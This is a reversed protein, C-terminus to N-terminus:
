FCTSDKYFFIIVKATRKFQLSIESETQKEKKLLKSYARVEKCPKLCSETSPMANYVQDELMRHITEYHQKYVDATVPIRGNCINPHDPGALWPVMCGLLSHHNEEYEKAVCEAFTQFDEGEGYMMCAGSEAMWHIEEFYINYIMKSKTGQDMIVADGDMNEPNLMFYPSNLPDTIIVSLTQETTAINLTFLESLHTANMKMQQCFGNFISFHQILDDANPSQM